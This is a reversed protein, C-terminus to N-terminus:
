KKSASFSLVQQFGVYSDQNELFDRQKGVCIQKGCYKNKESFNKM